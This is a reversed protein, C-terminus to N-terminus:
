FEIDNFSIAAPHQDDRFRVGDLEELRYTRIVGTLVDVYNKGLESYGALSGALVTGSVPQKAKKMRLRRTRLGDYAAASNLLQLYHRTSAAISDYSAVKVNGSRSVIYKKRTNAPRHVGYLSNGELAFRSTGWGSEIIAQSLALSVPIEDARKLLKDFDRNKVGYKARMKNLFAKEHWLLRQYRGIKDKLELIREREYRIRLNERVIVPLMIAIFLEKKAELEVTGIDPPLTKLFAPSICKCDRTKALSAAYTNFYEVAEEANVLEVHYKPRDFTTVSDLRKGSGNDCGSCVLLVTLSYLLMVAIKRVKM